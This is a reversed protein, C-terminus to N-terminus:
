SHSGSDGLRGIASSIDSVLTQWGSLGAVPGDIDLRDLLIRRHRGFQKKIRLHRRGTSESAELLAAKLIEKPSRALEIGSVKPIQLAVRGNPRGVVERIAREDVLLWAELEQIPIVPIADTGDPVCAVAKEIVERAHSPSPDDADRHLFVLNPAPSEALVVRLKKRLDHGPPEPLLSLDPATGIVEEAGARVCLTRLHPVLGSDSSGEGLFVFRLIKM